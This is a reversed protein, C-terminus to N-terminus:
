LYSNNDYNNSTSCTCFTYLSCLWLLLIFVSFVFTTAATKPSYNIWNMAANAIKVQVIEFWGPAIWGRIWIKWHLVALSALFQIFEEGWVSAVVKAKEETKIRRKHIYPILAVMKRVTLYFPLNCTCHYTLQLTM